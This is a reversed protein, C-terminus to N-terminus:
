PSIVAKAYKTKITWKLFRKDDNYLNQQAMHLSNKLNYIFLIIFTFLSLLFLM